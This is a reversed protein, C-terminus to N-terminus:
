QPIVAAPHKSARKFHRFFFGAGSVGSQPPPHSPEARRHPLPPSRVARNAPSRRRGPPGRRRPLRARGAAPLDLLDPGARWFAKFFDIPKVKSGAVDRWADLPLEYVVQELYRSALQGRGAALRAFLEVDFIWRVLFPPEFADAYLSDARFMKLAANPTTFALAWPWARWTPSSAGWGIPSHRPARDSPGVAAAALRDGRRGGAARRARPLVPRDGGAAHGSRCGLFRHLRPGDAPGGARRQARGRGQRPQAAPSHVSIARAGRCAVAGARLSHRRHQRDDVFLFQVQPHAAAFEQFRRADLRQAENFCPVVVIARSM